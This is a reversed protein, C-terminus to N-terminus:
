SCRRATRPPSPRAPRVRLDATSRCKSGRGRYTQVAPRQHDVPLEIGRDARRRPAPAVVRRRRGAATGSLERASAARVGLVPRGAPPLRRGAYARELDDWLVARSGEDSAIHHLSLALWSLEEAIRVLLARILDDEALDFPAGVFMAEVAGRAGSEDGVRVVDLLAEAPEALFAVPKGDPGRRVRTRLVHHERVM